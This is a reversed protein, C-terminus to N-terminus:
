VRAEVAGSRQCNGRTPQSEDTVRNARAAAVRAAIWDEVEGEVWAISRMGVSMPKPFLSQVASEPQMIQLQIKVLHSVAVPRNM